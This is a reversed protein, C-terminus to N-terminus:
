GARCICTNNRINRDTITCRIVGPPSQLSAKGRSVSFDAQGLVRWNPTNHELTVISGKKSIIGRGTFAVGDCCYLYDGTTTNFLLVIGANYDDQLCVDFAQAV